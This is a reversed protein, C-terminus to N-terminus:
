PKIDIVDDDAADVDALKLSSGYKKLAESMVPSMFVQRNDQYIYQVLKSDTPYPSIGTSKLIEKHADWAHNLQEKSLLPVANGKNDITTSRYNSILWYMNDLVPTLCRITLETQANVIHEKIDEKNFLRSIAPRTVGVAKGIEDQTSGAIYMSIALNKEQVTLRGNNPM